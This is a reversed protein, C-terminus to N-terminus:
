RAKGIANDGGVVAAQMEFDLDRSARRMCCDRTRTGICQFRGGADQGLEVAQAAFEVLHVAALRGDRRLPNEAARHRTTAVVIRDGDWRLVREIMRATGAHPLLAGIDDLGPDERLTM